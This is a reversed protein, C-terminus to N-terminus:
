FFYSLGIGGVLQGTLAVLDGDGAVIALGLTASLAVNPVVFTRVQAGGEIHFLTFTEDVEEDDLITLGVGGGLSFDAATSTHLHYWFRGGLGFQTGGNSYFDVIGEIHFQGPDYLIAGGTPAGAGPGALMAQIGVGFGSGSAGATETAETTETTEAGGTVEGSASVEGSAEVGGGVDDEGGGLLPDDESDQALAWSSGTGLLCLFSLIAVLRKMRNM